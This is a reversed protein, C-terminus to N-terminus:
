RRTEGHDEQQLLSQFASYVRDVTLGSMCINGIPCDTLNCELCDLDEHRVWRNKPGYPGQLRPVTPGYIGLTPVGLAAAIHMPGSDNSVMSSCRSLFAGMEKLTTSPIIRSQQTMLSRIAEVEEKEGPGWFFLVSRGSGTIIRDALAAYSERKWRKTYWGGGPNLAVANAPIKETRFWEEATRHEQEGVPFFPQPGNVAVGFHRLVDLNFDVNHVEGGRPTVHYQYAYSRGRFPFGVRHRAGSWRTFLATRPNGFLDIVIDYRRKRVMRIVSLTSDKKKHFTLVDRVGPNGRVVDAAFTETLFDIQLHPFASRLAGIVPTSLLVDGIARPKILLISSADHFLRDAAM